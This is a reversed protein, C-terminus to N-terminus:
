LQKTSWINKDMVCATVFEFYETMSVWDSLTCLRVCLVNLDRFDSWPACVYLLWLLRPLRSPFSWFGQSVGLGSEDTQWGAVCAVADEEGDETQDELGCLFCLEMWGWRELIKWRLFAVFAISIFLSSSSSSSSSVISLRFFTLFLHQLLLFM